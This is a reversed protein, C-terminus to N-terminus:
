LTRFQFTNVLKTRFLKGNDADFLCWDLGSLQVRGVGGPAQGRVRTVWHVGRGLQTGETEDQGDIAPEHWPDEDDSEEAVAKDDHDEAPLM